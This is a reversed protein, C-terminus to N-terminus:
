VFDPGLARRLAKRICRQLEADEELDLLHFDPAILAAIVLGAQRCEEGFTLDQNLVSGALQAINKRPKSGGWAALADM